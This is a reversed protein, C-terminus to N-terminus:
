RKEGPVTPAVDKYIGVLFLDLGTPAAYEAGVSSPIKKLKM